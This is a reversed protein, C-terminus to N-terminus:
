RVCVCVEVREYLEPHTNEEYHALKSMLQDLTLNKKEAVLPLLRNRFAAFNVTPLSDEFRTTEEKYM